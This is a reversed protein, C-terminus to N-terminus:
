MKAWNSVIEQFEATNALSHEGQLLYVNGAVNSIDSHDILEDNDSVVATVLPKDLKYMYQEFLKRYQEMYEKSIGFANCKPLTEWPKFCPNELLVPVKLEAGICYAWFAGLSHGSLIPMIEGNKDTFVKGKLHLGNEASFRFNVTMDMLYAYIDNPSMIDYDFQPSVTFIGTDIEKFIGFLTNDATGVYGHINIIM